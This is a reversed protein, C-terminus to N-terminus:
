KKKRKEKDEKLTEKHINKVLTIFYYVLILVLLYHILSALLKGINLKIFGLYLQDQFFKIDFLPELIKMLINNVLSKLFDNTAFGLIVSVAPIILHDNYLFTTFRRQKLEGEDLSYNM